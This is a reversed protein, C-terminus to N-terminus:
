EVRDPFPDTAFPVPAFAGTKTTEAAPKRVRKRPKQVM